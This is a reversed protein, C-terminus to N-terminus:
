HLIDAFTAGILGAAAEPNVEMQCGIRGASIYFNDLLMAEEHIVTRYNKKMGIPSCGGRYYGTVSNLERVHIMEVSKEGVAAAAKKLNLEGDVPLVFIYFNRGTSSKTVLTKYVKFSEAGLKNAATIGDLEGEPDYTHTIYSIGSSDLIRMANTKGEM